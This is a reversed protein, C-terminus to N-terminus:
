GCFKGEKFRTATEMHNIPQPDPQLFRGHDLLVVLDLSAEYEEKSQVSNQWDSSDYYRANLIAGLCGITWHGSMLQIYPRSPFYILWGDSDVARYVAESYAWPEKWHSKM